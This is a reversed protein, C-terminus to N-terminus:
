LRGIEFWFRNGGRAAPEIGVRGEHAEAVKRVVFLGLGDGPKGTATTGRVYPEFIRAADFEPLPQGRDEVVVRWADGMQELSVAVPAGAPGYSLANDILNGVAMAILNRDGRLKVSPAGFQMALHADRRDRYRDQVVDTLVEVLDLSAFRPLYWDDRLRTGVLHRDFLERIRGVARGIKDLRTRQAARDQDGVDRLVSATAEITALPTRLEHSLMALFDREARRSNREADLQGSLRDREALVARSQLGMGTFILALYLISALEHLGETWWVSPLYGLHCLVRVMSVVLYLALGGALFRGIPRRYLGRHTLAYLMVLALVLAFGLLAEITQAVWGQALPVVASVMLLIVGAISRNFLRPRTAHIGIARATFEAGAVLAVAFALAGVRDAWAAVVANAGWSLYGFLHIFVLATGATFLAFARWLHSRMLVAVIAAVIAAALQCAIVVGAKFAHFDLARQFGARDYLAVQTVLAAQTEIRIVVRTAGPPLALRVAPLIVPESGAAGRWHEGTRLTTRRGGTDLTDITIRDLLPNSFSLWREQVQLDPNLIVLRLMVQPTRYGLSLNDLHPALSGGEDWQEFLEDASSEGAPAPLLEFSLSRSSAFSELSHVPVPRAGSSAASLGVEFVILIFIPLIRFYKHIM